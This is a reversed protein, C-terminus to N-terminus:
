RDKSGGFPQKTRKVAYVGKRKKDSVEFADSTSGNGLSRLM